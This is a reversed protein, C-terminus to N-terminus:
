SMGMGGICFVLGAANQDGAQSWLFISNISLRQYYFTENQRCCLASREHPWNNTGSAQMLISWRSKCDCKQWSNGLHCGLCCTVHLIHSCTFIGQRLLWVQLTRLPHTREGSMWSLWGSRFISAQQNRTCICNRQYIVPWPGRLWQVSSPCCQLDFHLFLHASYAKPSSAQDQLKTM